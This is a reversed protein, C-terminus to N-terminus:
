KSVSIDKTGTDWEELQTNKVTINEVFDLDKLDDCCRM